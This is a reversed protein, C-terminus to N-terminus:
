KATYKLTSFNIFTTFFSHVNTTITALITLIPDTKRKVEFFELTKSNETLYNTYTINIAILILHRINSLTKTIILKTMNLTVQTNLIQM